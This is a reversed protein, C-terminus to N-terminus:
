RKGALIDKRLPVIRGESDLQLRRGRWTVTSRTLGATWVCFGYLDRFPIAWCLRLADYHRLVGVACALGAAVRLLLLGLAAAPSGALALITAWLTANIIPLGAYGGGRCVRVTTAWRVQHQWVHSWSDGSVRTEVVERSLHVRLGLGSILKGLQYDDALYPAIAEFGGARRLDEARFALTSGMAFENVGLLRAVLVSPAFDTSVGLAEFRAPITDGMPRYLCTVIGIKADQLAATVRCLYEPGVHIDSDNVVFIPYRASRALDILVGVKPNPAETRCAFVASAPPRLREIEALAPDAADAVGFLIEFTPYEQQAQSQIGVDLGPDLGRIPKLVSIGPQTSPLPDRRLLHAFAAVLTLLQYGGAVALIILPIM